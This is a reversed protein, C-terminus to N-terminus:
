SEFTKRIQMELQVVHMKEIAIRKVEDTSGFSAVWHMADYEFKLDGTSLRLVWKKYEKTNM